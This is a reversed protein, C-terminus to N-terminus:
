RRCTRQIEHRGLRACRGHGFSAGQRRGAGACRKPESGGRRADVVRTNRRRAFSVQDQGKEARSGASLGDNGQAISTHGQGKTTEAWRKVLADIPAHLNMALNRNNRSNIGIVRGNMDFLPGGSDGWQMTCDTILYGSDPAYLVRGLRVPATRGSKRITAHGLMLVWQGEKLDASTGIEVVPHEAETHVQILGVDVLRDAGLSVGEMQTGDTTQISLERGKSVTVHGASLVYTDEDRRVLVGSGYPISVTAPLVREVLAQVHGELARLEEITEPTGGALIEALRSGTVGAEEQAVVPFSPLPLILALSLLAATRLVM